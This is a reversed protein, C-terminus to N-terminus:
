DYLYRVQIEKIFEYVRNSDINVLDNDITYEFDINLITEKETISGNKSTIKIFRDKVELSHNNFINLLNSYDTIQKTKNAIGRDNLESFYIVEYIAKRNLAGLSFDSDSFGILGVYFSPRKFNQPVQNIYINTNLFNDAIENCISEIIYFLDM